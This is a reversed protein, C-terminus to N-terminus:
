SRFQTILSRGVTLLPTSSTTGVGCVSHLGNTTIIGVRNAAADLFAMQTLLAIGSIQTAPLAWTHHVNGSADTVIPDLILLDQVIKCSTGPLTVDIASAGLILVGPLNAVGCAGEWEHFLFGSVLSRGDTAHRALVNASSTCGGYTGNPGSVGFGTAAPVTAYVMSVEPGGPVGSRARTWGDCYYNYATTKYTFNWFDLVVARNQAPQFLFSDDLAIKFDFGTSPNTPTGLVPLLLKKRTFVRRSTSRDLNADFATTATAADIGSAASSLWLELEITQGGQNGTNYSSPMRFDISRVVLPTQGSTFSDANHIQQYHHADVGFGYGLGSIGRTNAGAGMATKPSIGSNQAVASTSGVLVAWACLVSSVLVPHRRAFNKSFSM